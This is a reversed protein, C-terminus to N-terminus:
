QNLFKTVKDDYSYSLKDNIETQKLELGNANCIELFHTITIGSNNVAYKTLAKYTGMNKNLLDKARTKEEKLIGEIIEDTKETSYNLEQSQPSEKKIVRSIMGDMGYNRGSSDIILLIALLFISSNSVRINAISSCFIRM